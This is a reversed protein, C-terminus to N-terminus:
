RGAHLRGDRLRARQAALVRAIGEALQTAPPPVPLVTSRFALGGAQQASRAQRASVVRIPRKLFRGFLGVLFGLSVAQESAIIKVRM